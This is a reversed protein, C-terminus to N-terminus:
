DKLNYTARTECGTMFKERVYRPDRVLKFFERIYDISEARSSVPIIKTNGIIEEFRLMLSEFFRFTDILEDYSYCLGKFVRRPALREEPVGSPKTYYANVFESFDFDYPIAYPSFASDAPQAIIINKQSSVFWDKNGIIFQFVVLKRYLDQDLDFPTVFKESTESDNREAAHDEDEIFFSYKEFLKRDRNTDFYTIKALRVRLSKDTVLNYMRYVLYELVVDRDSQCPTVLKLRKQSDFLTNKTDKKSFKIALPPFDCNSPDRRFNGRVSVEVKLTIVKGGIGTYLLKGDHFKATGEREEEIATFNSNLQIEVIEDSTFLTDPGSASLISTAFFLSIVFALQLLKTKSLNIM